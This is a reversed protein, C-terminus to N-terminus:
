PELGDHTTGLCGATLCRHHTHCRLCIAFAISLTQSYATCVLHGTLCFDEYSSTRMVVFGWDCVVVNQFHLQKPALM